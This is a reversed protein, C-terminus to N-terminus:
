CCQLRTWDGNGTFYQNWHWLGSIAVIVYNQSWTNNLRLNFDFHSINIYKKFAHSTSVKYLTWMEWSYVVSDLAHVKTTGTEHHCTGSVAIV